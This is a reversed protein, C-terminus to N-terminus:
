LAAGEIDSEVAIRMPRVPNVGIAIEAVQATHSEWGQSAPWQVRADVMAKDYASACDNQHVAGIAHEFEFNNRALKRRAAISYAYLRITTQTM